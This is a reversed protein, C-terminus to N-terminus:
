IAQIVAAEVAGDQSVERWSGLDWAWVKDVSSVQAARSLFRRAGKLTGFTSSTSGSSMANDDAGLDDVNTTSAGKNATDGRSPSGRGSEDGRTSQDHDPVSDHHSRGSRVSGGGGNSGSYSTNTLTDECVTESFLTATRESGSECFAVLASLVRGVHEAFKDAVKTIRVKWTSTRAEQEGEEVNREAAVVCWRVGDLLLV